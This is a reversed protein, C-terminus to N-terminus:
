LNKELYDKDEQSPNDGFNFAAVEDPMVVREEKTDMLIFKVPKKSINKVYLWDSFWNNFYDESFDKTKELWKLNRTGFVRGQYDFNNKNFEGVEKVYDKPNNVNLLRKFAELGNGDPYMDGNFETSIYVIKNTILILKGRTM